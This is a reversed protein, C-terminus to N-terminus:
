AAAAAAAAQLRWRTPTKDPFQSTQNNDRGITTPKSARTFHLRVVLQGWRM